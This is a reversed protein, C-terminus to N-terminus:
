LTSQLDALQKDIQNVEKTHAKVKERLANSKSLLSLDQKKEASRASADAEDLLTAAVEEM